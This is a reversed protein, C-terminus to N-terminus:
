KKCLITEYLQGAVKAGSAPVNNAIDETIFKIAADFEVISQENTYGVLRLLEDLRISSGSHKEVNEEWPLMKLNAKDGIVFPSVKNKYGDFISLRHDIHWAGETGALGTIYGATLQKRHKETLYIVNLKYRYFEDRLEAPLILGKKAKTENGKIIAKSALQSYGNRGFEDVNAM